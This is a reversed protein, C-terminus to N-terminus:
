MYLDIIVDISFPALRKLLKSTFVISGQGNDSFYGCYIDIECKSVLTKFQENHDEVFSLIIDVHKELEESEHLKSEFIWVSSNRTLSKPNRPSSLSGKEFIRTPDVGLINTIENVSLTDSLIRLSVSIKKGEESIM